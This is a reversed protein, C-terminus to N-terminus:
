TMSIQVFEILGIILISAYRLSSSSRDAVARNQGGHCANQRAGPLGPLEKRACLDGGNAVRAGVPRGPLNVCLVDGTRDVLLDGM